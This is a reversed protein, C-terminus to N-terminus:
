DQLAKRPIGYKKLKRAITAQTVGLSEAMQCQTDYKAMAQILISREFEEVAKPLPIGDEWVRPPSYPLPNRGTIFAPLDQLDIVETESMVVLRECINMLERVNGPFDYSLLAETAAMTLRKQIDNRKSFYTLYHRLLPLICDKREKVAPIYLPIVNLRYYLDLRFTGNEIMEELNRHTAALIRVDVDRVQTGGLRSMRGDEIFRLLKVQSSMPLEAIEDLFLIGGHALELLGPKGGQAGTFAGKEYGFLESEVLSEPIAGCNIKILPKESRTSNKHIVDAFLGKGVGSEGLILVTSDSKSVKLAQQLANIMCPSKAIVIRSKLEELQMELIHHRFQNKMAQEEELERQLEDIETIDRESIVIRIINGNPDLVPTGTSIMKRGKWSQLLSAVKKSQIVDQVVSGGILGQTILERTSRGVVDAANVQNIRESAPNVRIVKARADCIWLGDSSSDIIADLEGVLAQFSRLREAFEETESIKVFVCLVGAMGFNKPLHNMWILYNKAKGPISFEIEIRQRRDELTNLVKPWIQPLADALTAGATVGLKKSEKGASLLIRGSPDVAIVADGIANALAENLDIRFRSSYESLPSNKLVQM